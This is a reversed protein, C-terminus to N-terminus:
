DAETSPKEKKTKLFAVALTGLCVSAVGMALWDHNNMGLYIAAGLGSVGIVLASLTGTLREAFIFSNVRQQERRRVEAEKEAQEFIWDVKEPRIVHLREISDIPIIPADTHTSQVAIQAGNESRAQASVQRNAM